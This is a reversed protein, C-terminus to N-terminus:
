VSGEEPEEPTLDIFTVTAPRTSKDWVDFAGVQANPDLQVARALRAAEEPSDAEIQIEWVITYETTM